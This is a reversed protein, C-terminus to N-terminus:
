PIQNVMYMQFMNTLLSFLLFSCLFTNVFKKAGMGGLSRGKQVVMKYKYKMEVKGRRKQIEGSLV